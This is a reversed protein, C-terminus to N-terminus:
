HQGQLASADRSGDLAEMEAKVFNRGEKRVEEIYIRGVDRLGSKRPGASSDELLELFQQHKRIGLVPVILAIALSLAALAIVLGKGVPLPVWIALNFIVIAVWFCAKYAKISQVSKERLNRIDGATLAKGTTIAHNVAVHIPNTKVKVEGRGSELEASTKGPDGRSPSQFM